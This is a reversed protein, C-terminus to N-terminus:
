AHLHWLLNRLLGLELHEQIPDLRSLPGSKPPESIGFTPTLNPVAHVLIM